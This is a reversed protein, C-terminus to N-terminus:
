FKQSELKLIDSGAPVKFKFKEDDASDLFVIDYFAIYSEDDYANFTRVGTILFSNESITIFVKSLDPTKEKPILKLITNGSPDTSEISVDFKKRILRIDSLFSAGNGDGFYANAKGFIVQNDEPRYMWLSISDTIITQKEPTEYEWRMKGPRKFIANGSATDKMQMAQLTSEQRFKASFAPKSYNQEVKGLIEDLQKAQGPSVPQESFAPSGSVALFIFLACISARSGIRGTM